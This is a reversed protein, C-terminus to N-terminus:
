LPKQRFMLEIEFNKNRRDIVDYKLSTAQKPPKDETAGVTAVPKATDLIVEHSLEEIEAPSIRGLYGSAFQVLTKM